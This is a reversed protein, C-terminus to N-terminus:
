CSFPEMPAGPVQREFRLPPVDLPAGGVMLRPAQFEVVPTGTPVVAEFLLRTPAGAPVIAAGTALRDHFAISASHVRLPVAAAGQAEGVRFADDRIRLRGAQLPQVTYEADLQAGQAGEGRSWRGRWRWQPTQGSHSADAVTELNECAQRPTDRRCAAASDRARAAEQASRFLWPQSLTAPRELRTAPLQLVGDDRDFALGEVRVAAADIGRVPGALLRISGFPAPREIAFQPGAGTRLQQPENWEGIALPVTRQASTQLFADSARGDLLVLSRSALLISRHAPLTITVRLRHGPPPTASPETDLSAALTAGDALDLEIGSFPGARGQCWARRLRAQPAQAVPRYYPAHATPMCGHLLALAPAGGIARVLRRRLPSPQVHRM